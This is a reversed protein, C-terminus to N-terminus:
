WVGILDLGVMGWAFVEGFEEEDNEEESESEDFDDDGDDFVSM